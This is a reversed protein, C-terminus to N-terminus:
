PREPADWESGVHLLKPMHAHLAVELSIKRQEESWARREIFM